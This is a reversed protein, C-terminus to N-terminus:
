AVPFASHRIDFTSPIAHLYPYLTHTGHGPRSTRVVVDYFPICHHHFRIQHHPPHDYHHENLICVPGRRGVAASSFEGGHHGYVVTTEALRALSSQPRPHQSSASYQSRNHGCPRLRHIRPLHLLPPASEHLRVQRVCRSHVTHILRLATTRASSRRHRLVGVSAIGSKM